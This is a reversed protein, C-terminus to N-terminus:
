PQLLEELIEFVLFGQPLNHQSVGNFKNLRVTKSGCVQKAMYWLYQHVVQSMLFVSCLLFRLFRYIVM